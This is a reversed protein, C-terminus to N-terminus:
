TYLPVKQTYFLFTFMNVRFQCNGSFFYLRWVSSIAKREYYLVFPLLLQQNPFLWCRESCIKPESLNWKARNLSNWTINLASVPAIMASDSKILAQIFRLGWGPFKGCKEFVRLFIQGYWLNKLLWFKFMTYNRQM